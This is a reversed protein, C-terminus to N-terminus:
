ILLFWTYKAFELCLYLTWCQSFSYQLPTPRWPGVVVSSNNSLHRDMPVSMLININILIEGGLSERGGGERGESLYNRRCELDVLENEIEDRLSFLKEYFNCFFTSRQLFFSSLNQCTYAHPLPPSNSRSAPQLHTRCLHAATSYSITLFTLDIILVRIMPRVNNKVLARRLSTRRSRGDSLFCM